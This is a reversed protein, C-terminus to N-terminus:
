HIREITVRNLRCNRTIEEGNENKKFYGIHDRPTNKPHMRDRQPHVRWRITQEDSGAQNYMMAGLMEMLENKSELWLTDSSLTDGANPLYKRIFREAGDPTVAMSEEETNSQDNSM